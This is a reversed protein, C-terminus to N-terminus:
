EKGTILTIHALHHRCHWAYFSLTDLITVPESGEKSFTKRWEEETLDSLLMVLKTQIEELLYLSLEMPTGLRDELAVMEEQNFSPVVPNNGTLALQFRLLVHMQTHSLHHVLQTVNWGGERYSNSLIEDSCGDIAKEINEPLESMIQIWKSIQEESPNTVAKHKGVPYKKDM